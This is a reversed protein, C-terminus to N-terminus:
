HDSQQEIIQALAREDHKKLKEVLRDRMLNM